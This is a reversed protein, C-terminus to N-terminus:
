SCSDHPWPGLRSPLVVVSVFRGRDRTHRSPSSAKETHLYSVIAETKRISLARGNRGSM